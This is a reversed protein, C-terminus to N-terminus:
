RNRYKKWLNNKNKLSSNGNHWFGCYECVYQELNHNPAFIEAELKTKYKRKKKGRAYCYDAPNPQLPTTAGRKSHKM